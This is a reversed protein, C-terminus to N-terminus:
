AGALSSVPPVCVTTWLSKLRNWFRCL